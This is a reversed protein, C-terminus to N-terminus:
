IIASRNISIHIASKIIILISKDSFYILKILAYHLLFIIREKGLFPKISKVLLSGYFSLFYTNRIGIGIM